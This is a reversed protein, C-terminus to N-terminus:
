LDLHEKGLREEAFTVELSALCQSQLQNGSVGVLNPEFEVHGEAEKLLGVFDEVLLDSSYELCSLGNGVQAIGELHKMPNLSLELLLEFKTTGRFEGLLAAVERDFDEALHELHGLVFDVQNFVHELDRLLLKRMVLLIFCPSVVELLLSGQVLLFHLTLLLLNGLLLM